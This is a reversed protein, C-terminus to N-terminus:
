DRYKEPVPKIEGCSPCTRSEESGYFRKFVPPLDKEINALQFYEEHILADCHDCYWQFGDLEGENRQREVVLGVSGEMRQPSHPVRAPLLYIEGAKIPIDVRAGDQITRLVM